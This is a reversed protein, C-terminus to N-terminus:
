PVTVSKALARPKDIDRKLHSATYYAVLQGTVMQILPAVICPVRPLMIAEDVQDADDGEHLVGIVKGGRTRIEQVNNMTDTYLQAEEGPPIFALTNIDPDILSITGHKLFGGSMGEAHLYTVEKMKLSSELAIAHYIGRGIYLWNKIHANAQAIRSIIGKTENIFRELTIAFSRIDAIYNGFEKQSILGRMRGMQLVLRLLIVVQAFAAKTSLVCIEPGSGQYIALDVTRAIESTPVNVIAATKSNAQRAYKLARKTDHTEGSQSVAIVLDDKGLVALEPLVDSSIASANVKAYRAFYYQATLSVYYTTGIGTLITQRASSISEALKSVLNDDIAMATLLAQPQEHIEKLMYHPFGGKKSEEKDWPIHTIERKVETNNRHDKIIFGAKDIIAYEGDNLVVTRKTYDIVANIDSGIFMEGEGIGLILPSENKVGYICDPEDLSILVFAFPGVLHKFVEGVARELDGYQNRLDEILVVIVESDTQSDFKYGKNLLSQKLTRYNHIVGNHALALRKDNSLHPHSNIKNVGGHTAWRTHAIGITAKHGALNLKRNVRDIHGVDKKVKIAGDEIYAVGCSDYGRYELNKISQLLKDKIPHKSIIGSIGCM